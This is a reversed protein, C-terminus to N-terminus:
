GMTPTMLMLLLTGAVALGVTALLAWLGNKKSPGKLQNILVWFLLFDTILM